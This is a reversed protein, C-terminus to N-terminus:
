WMRALKVPGVENHFHHPATPIDPHHPSNVVRVSKVLPHQRLLNLLDDALATM